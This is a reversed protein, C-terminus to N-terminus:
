WRVCAAAISAMGAGFLCVPFWGAIHYITTGAPIGVQAKFAQAAPSHDEQKCENCLVRVLRQALVAVATTKGAGLFGGIMFYRAAAPNM